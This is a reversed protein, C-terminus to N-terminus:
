PHCGRSLVGAHARVVVEDDDATARRAADEGVPEGLIRGIAHQHQLRAPRVPRPVHEDVHGGRQRKRDAAAEIVPLVLGLGLREHAAALDVVRAPLHQAARAADVPHDELAAVREVVLAPRGAVPHLGPVVSVAQGVELPHLVTERRPRVIGEATVVARERELAARRAAREEVGEEVGDLLGAIREGLVHVAVALLAKGREVAVHVITTAQRRRAGVQVRHHATRVELHLGEREGRLDEELAAPRHADLVGAGVPARTGGAAGLDDEATARDVRGLQELEGAHPGGAVKPRDPDVDHVVQGAHPLVQLVVELDVDLVRAGLGHRHRGVEVHLVPRLHPELPQQALRTGAGGVVELRAAEHAAVVLDLVGVQHVVEQRDGHAVVAGQRGASAAVAILHM